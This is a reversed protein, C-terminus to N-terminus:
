GDSARAVKIANSWLRDVDSPLIPLPGDWWYIPPHSNPLQRGTRNTWNGVYVLSRAVKQAIYVRRSVTVIGFPKNTPATSMKRWCM